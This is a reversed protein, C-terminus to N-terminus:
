NETAFIFDFFLLKWIKKLIIKNVKLYNHNFKPM